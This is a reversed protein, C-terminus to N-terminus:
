KSVARGEDDIVIVDDFEEGRAAAVLGEAVNTSCGLLVRTALVADEWSMGPMAGDIVGDVKVATRLLELGANRKAVTLVERM